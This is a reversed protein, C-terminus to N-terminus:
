SCLVAQNSICEGISGRQFLPIQSTNGTSKARPYYQKKIKVKLSARRNQNEAGYYGSTKGRPYACPARLLNIARAVHHRQLDGEGRKALQAFVAWGQTGRQLPPHLWILQVKYLPM